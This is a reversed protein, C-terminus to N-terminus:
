STSSSLKPMMSMRRNWPSSSSSSIWSASSSSGSPGFEYAVVQDDGQSRGVALAESLYARAATYDREDTAVTGLRSLSGAIGPRDNMSRRIALAAEHM